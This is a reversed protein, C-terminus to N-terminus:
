RGGYMRKLLQIGEKGSLKVDPEASRRYYPHVQKPDITKGGWVAAMVCILQSTHDWLQRDRAEAM